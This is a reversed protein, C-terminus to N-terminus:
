YPAYNVTLLAISTPTVTGISFDKVYQYSLTAQLFPTMAYAANARLSYTTTTQSGAELGPVSQSFAASSQSAAVGATLTVKPTFQYTASLSASESQQLNAIVNTPPTVVRAVSASLAVKPTISWTVSLSYQPEFSPWGFAFYGSKAGVVGVSVVYSLNPNITKSYSLNIQDETIKDVLGLSNLALSRNNYNTGTITALLELTNTEAVTYSMGAAVFANQFDNPKDQASSNTSTTTGMNLIGSYNGTVACKGTENFGTNTISNLVNVGVQQGPESPTTAESAILKGSCRSSYAWNVGADASNHAVDLNAHDLYRDFGYTGDVFFQQGGWNWKTSAGYNSISEFTAITGLGLLSASSSSPTNLVNSNYGVAESFKFQVPLDSWNQPLYPLMGALSPPSAASFASFDQAEASRVAGLTLLAGVTM